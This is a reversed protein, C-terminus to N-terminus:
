EKHSNSANRSCTSNGDISKHRLVSYTVCVQACGRACLCVAYMASVYVSVCIIIHLDFWVVCVYVSVCM